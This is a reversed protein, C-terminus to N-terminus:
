RLEYKATQAVLGEKGASGQAAACPNVGRNTGGKGGAGPKGSAGLYYAVANESVSSNGILAVLVSPGASGGAGGAGAGGAGGNGGSGGAGSRDSYRPSDGNYNGAAGLGGAGGVGGVGGAGGAGSMAGYVRTHDLTIHSASLVLAFSGGGPSGGRGGHGRGGGAGGGGGRNGPLAILTGRMAVPDCFHGGRSGGAGGGGGGGGDTGDDGNSADAIASWQPPHASFRGLTAARPTASKDACPASEASEGNIGNNALTIDDRQACDSCIPQGPQGGRASWSGLGNEGACGPTACQTTCENAASVSVKMEMSGAGGRYGGSTGPNAGSASGGIAGDTGRAGDHGAGGRGAVITDDAFTLQNVNEAVIAISARGAGDNAASGTIEFNRVLTAHAIDQASIAPTGDGPAVISSHLSQADPTNAPVCGGYVNVGDKLAIPAALRYEGREVLVGCRAVDCRSIGFGITLCAAKGPAAGCTAVDTGNPSVYIRKALTTLDAKGCVYSSPAGRSASACALILVLTFAPRTMTTLRIVLGVRAYGANLRFM